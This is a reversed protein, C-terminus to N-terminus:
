PKNVPSPPDNFPPCRRITLSTRLLVPNHCVKKVFWDLRQDVEEVAADGGLGKRNDADFREFVQKVVPKIYGLVGPYDNKEM